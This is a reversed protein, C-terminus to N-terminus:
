VNYILIGGALVKKTNESEYHMKATKKGSQKYPPINETEDREPPLRRSCGTDRRLRFMKELKFMEDNKIFVKEAPM